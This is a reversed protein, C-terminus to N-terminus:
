CIDKFEPYSNAAVQEHFFRSRVFIATKCALKKQASKLAKMAKNYDVGSLEYLVLGPQGVFILKDMSGKGKGMRVEAPKSTIIRNPKANIFIRISPKRKIVRGIAVRGAEIQTSTLYTTELLRLGIDGKFNIYNRSLTEKNPYSKAYPKFPKRYKVNLNM